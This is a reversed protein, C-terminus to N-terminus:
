GTPRGAELTATLYAFSTGKIWRLRSWSGGQGYLEDLARTVGECNAYDHWLIIGRDSVLRDAVLSDNLAYDYTHSGDVLVFDMKRCYPAFDFTASDGILQRIKGMYDTNQFRKGSSPKEIYPRDFSSISFRTHEIEDQPLDLTYVFADPPSNAAMNMTTRGDFTGIEFVTKPQHITILNNIAMIELLSVNGDVQVPELLKIDTDCRILASLDIQPIQPAQPASQKPFPYGFHKFIEFILHRHRPTLIGASFLYLCSFAGYLYRTIFLLLRKM